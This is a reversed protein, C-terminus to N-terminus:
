DDCSGRDAAHAAASRRQQSTHDTAIVLTSSFHTTRAKLRLGQALRQACEGIDRQQRLAATHLCEANHGATRTTTSGPVAGLAPEEDSGDAPLPMEAFANASRAAAAAAEEGSWGGPRGGGSGSSHLAVPSSTEGRLRLSGGCSSSTPSAICSRPPRSSSRTQQLSSEGGRGVIVAASSCSGTRRNNGDPSLELQQPRRADLSAIRSADDDHRRPTPLRPSSSVSKLRSMIIALGRQAAAGRSERTQDENIEVDGRADAASQDLQM